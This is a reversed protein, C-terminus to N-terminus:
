ARAVEDAWPLAERYAAGVLDPPTGLHGALREVENWDAMEYRRMLNYITNLVNGEPAQGRLVADLPPALGLESLADDLPRDLLADLMSFLGVLFAQDEVGEGSAQGLLECFRGRVLSQTILEGPKDEAITPLAAIAIWKRIGYEGLVVLARRISHIKSQRGFRASNAYRLLKYSFSVDQSILATLRAFDLEPRHAEQILRLCHLKVAPIQKGQLVVPRAFFHGQFYDYGARLAWRYDADTEVKESLMRIGRAHFERLMVEQQAKPTHMEVKILDALEILADMRPGPRFDDLAIRYGQKRMARVAALVDDDPEVDETLEIVTCEKPLTSHWDQLLMERGFNICAHKGRLLQDFGISLMGNSIVQRTASSAETGDFQTQTASSRFLLEYAWVQRKRDFIPQRAIFVEVGAM